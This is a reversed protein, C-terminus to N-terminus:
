LEKRQFTLMALATLALGTIVATAIPWGVDARVGSLLGSAAAGLGAFTYEAAPSWISLVATFFYFGLGAGAAAGRSEFAASFLTMAAVLLLAYVLWLLVALLFTGVSSSGFLAATVAVCVAAGIATFVMVTTQQSLLKALVFGRRSLPKALVLAATGSLREGSVAGAGAIVVAILVIQNLNKLFQGYADVATPEPLTIVVGPQSGALSSVLTPTIMAIIPSTVAFFVIMGPIVWIRWTNLIELFEKELFAGFGKM